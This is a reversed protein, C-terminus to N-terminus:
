ASVTSAAISQSQWKEVNVGKAILWLCLSAEGVFCPILIAPFLRDAVAPALVLAFSNTVYCVGAIQMLVGVWRPLYGSRFILYGLVVCACGFFILSITFGYGHLRISLYALVHLQGADFSALYGASGQVLLPVALFVKSVSEICISVLEFFAALLALSRSIPRLLIYLILALGVACSLHVLNGAIGLRWLAEASRISEATATADGSVILRDRLFAEGFLGAIIIILYLVGGIRALVAPSIRLDPQPM